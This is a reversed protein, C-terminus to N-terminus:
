QDPSSSPLCDVDGCYITGSPISDFVLPHSDPNIVCSWGGAPYGAAMTAVLTWAFSPFEDDVLRWNGVVFTKAYIWGVGCLQKAIDIQRMRIRDLAPM